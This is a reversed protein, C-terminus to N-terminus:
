RARWVQLPSTTLAAPSSTYAEVLWRAGHQPATTRVPAELTVTARSHPALSLPTRTSTSWFGATGAGPNVMFHPHVVTGTLNRVTLTVATLQRGSAAVQVRDVTLQLPQASFALSSAVVVGVAPLAVTLVGARRRRALPRAAAGGAAGHVSVAAVVAIPFLDVLYSSLSRPSFFFALPLALLWVRKLAPYWQVWAGLLALYALGGAV